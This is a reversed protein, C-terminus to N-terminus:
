TSARHEQRGDQLLDDIAAGPRDPVGLVTVRAENKVMAAGCVPQEPSEPEAVIMTGPSDSFSSRVHVPVAFKKAFEISRNHM